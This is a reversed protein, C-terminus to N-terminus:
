HISREDELCSVAQYQFTEYASFAMSSFVTVSMLTIFASM